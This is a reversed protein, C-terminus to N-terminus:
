PLVPELVHKQLYVVGIREGALSDALSVLDKAASDNINGLKNKLEAVRVRQADIGAEDSQDAKLLADVFETGLQLEFSKLLEQYPGETIKGHDYFRGLVRDQEASMTLMGVANMGVCFRYPEIKEILGQEELDAVVKPRAKLRPIGQYPGAAENFRVERM